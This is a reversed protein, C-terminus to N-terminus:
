YVFPEAKLGYAENTENIAQDAGIAKLTDIYTQIATEVPVKGTIAEAMCTNFAIEVDGRIAEYTESVIVDYQVIYIEKSKVAEKVVNFKEKMQALSKEVEEPTGDYAWPMNEINTDPYEGIIGVGPLPAGAADRLVLYTDGEKRFSEGEVGFRCLEYGKETALLDLFNKVMQEGNKTGKALVYPPAAPASIFNVDETRNGIMAIIEEVQADAETSKFLDIGDLKAWGNWYYTSGFKGSTMKDRMDSGKNTFTESDLWGKSYADKLFTLAEVMEPKVMTDTFAGVKPDYVISGGGTNDLRADYAQFIDQLNWTKSSVFGGTDKIGNQDPDEETFAEMAKAFDDITKPVELGLNDLWDKRFSRTFMTQNYGMPFGWYEDDYFMVSRGDEPIKEWFEQGELATTIPEIVGDQKMRLLDSIGFTRILGNLEGSLALMRIKENYENRPYINLKITYGTEEKIKEQISAKLDANDTSDGFILCTTIEIYKDSEDVNGSPNTQGAVKGTSDASGGKSIDSTKAEPACASLFLVTVLLLSVIKKM